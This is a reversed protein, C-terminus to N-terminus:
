IGLLIGLEIDKPWSAEQFLLFTLFLFLLSHTFSRHGFVSSIINDILPIKRGISSGTHDIDPILAGLVLSGFFLAEQGVSGGLDLYLAGAALGGVIHTKGEM